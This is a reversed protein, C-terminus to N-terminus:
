VLYSGAMALYDSQESGLEGCVRSLGGVLIQEDAFRACSKSLSSVPLSCHRSDCDRLQGARKIKYWGSGTGCGTDPM